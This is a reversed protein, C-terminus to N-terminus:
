RNGRKVIPRHRHAPPLLQRTPGRGRHREGPVLQQGPRGTAAWSSSGVEDGAKRCVAYLIRPVPPGTAYPAAESPPTRRRAHMDYRSTVIHHSEERRDDDLDRGHEELATLPAMV